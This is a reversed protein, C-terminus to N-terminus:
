QNSIEKEKQTRRAETTGVFGFDSIALGFDGMSGNEREGKIKM